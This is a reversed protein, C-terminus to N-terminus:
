AGCEGAIQVRAAYGQTLLWRRWTAAASSTMRAGTQRASCVRWFQAAGLYEPAVSNMPKWDVRFRGVRSVYRLRKGTLYRWWGPLLDVTVAEVPGEEYFREWATAAEDELPMAEWFEDWHVVMSAQHLWEHLSLDALMIGGRDLIDQKIEIKGLTSGGQAGSGLFNDGVMEVGVVTAPQTHLGRKALFAPGDTIPAAAAKAGCAVVAWFFLGILCCILATRIGNRSM